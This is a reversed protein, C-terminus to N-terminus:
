EKEGKLPERIMIFVFDMKDVIKIIYGNGKLLYPNDTVVYCPSHECFPPFDFYIEADVWFSQILESIKGLIVVRSEEPVKEIIFDRMLKQKHTFHYHKFSIVSSGIIFIVPLFLNIFIKSYNTKDKVCELFAPYYPILLLIPPLIFRPGMILTEIFSPREQYFYWFSYFLIFISTSIFVEIRFPKKNFLPILPLLPYITILSLSYLSFYKLFYKTTFYGTHSLDGSIQGYSFYNYLITLIGFPFFGSIFLLFEKKRRRLILSFAFILFVFINPYRMSVSIGSFLGAFIYNGKRESLLFYFSILLAIGSPLDSMITRSYLVFSPYFLYLVGYYLPFGFQKLIKLFFIYGTLFYFLTGLFIWDGKGLTFPVLFIPWGFPHKFVTHRGNWLTQVFKLGAIDPYITGNKLTYAMGMYGGEDLFSYMQPYTILYILMFLFLFAISIILHKSSGSFKMNVM